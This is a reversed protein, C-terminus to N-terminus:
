ITKVTKSKIDKLQNGLEKVINKTSEAAYRIATSPTAEGKPWDQAGALAICLTDLTKLLTNLLKETKDGLLVPETAKNNGFFINTADLTINKSSLGISEQSSLGINKDSFFLLNDEKSYFVLRGSKLIVQSKNYESLSDLPKSSILSRYNENSVKIPIKQTSTIYISSDDKNIDENEPIWTDKDSHSNTNRIITIPDGEDGSTSWNNTSKKITSGLRISNNFRGEIIYDGLYTYLPNTKKNNIWNIGLDINPLNDQIIGPKSTSSVSSYSKNSPKGVDQSFPNANHLPSNWINIINLYYYKTSLTNNQSSKDPLPFIYVLENLLPPNKISPSLPHAIKPKSTNPGNINLDTFYINGLSSWGGEGLTNEKNFDKHNEDLIIDSVRGVIISPPQKSVSGGNNNLKQNLGNFGFQTM